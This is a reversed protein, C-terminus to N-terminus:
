GHTQDLPFPFLFLNLSKSEKKGLDTVCLFLGCILTLTALRAGIIGKKLFPKKICPVNEKILIFSMFSLFPGMEILLGPSKKQPEPMIKFSRINYLIWKLPM